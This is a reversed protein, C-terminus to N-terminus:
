RCTCTHPCVPWFSRRMMTPESRILARVVISDVVRACPNALVLGRNDAWSLIRALVTWADGAQRRVSQEAIKDRWEMFIGRTRRDTLSALPFDSFKKEIRKIVSVYCRKTSDRLRRFEESDQYKQLITSLQETPQKVKTVVAENYSAHLRARSVVCRRVAKGHTITGCKITGDVLRKPAHNIGKLTVRM